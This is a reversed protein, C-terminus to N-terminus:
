AKSATIKTNGCGVASQGAPGWIKIRGGLSGTVINNGSPSFAVGDGPCASVVRLLTGGRARWMRMSTEDKTLLLEGSFAADIIKGAHGAKRGHLERLAEVEARTRPHRDQELWGMAEAPEINDVEQLWSALHTGAGKSLRGPLGVGHKTITM